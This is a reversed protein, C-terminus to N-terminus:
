GRGWCPHGSRRWPEESGVEKVRYWKTWQARGGPLEFILDAISGDSHFIYEVDGGAAGGDYTAVGGVRSPRADYPALTGQFTRKANGGATATTVEVARTGRMATIAIGVIVVLAIALAWPLWRRGNDANRASDDITLEALTHKRKPAESM